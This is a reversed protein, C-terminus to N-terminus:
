QHKWELVVKANKGTHLRWTTGDYSPLYGAYWLELLPKWPCSGLKEAHKWTKINPFLGGTYAWVSASVSDRVSASVSAWVSARVSASVSAWVSYRVSDSVSASVSAWVSYRVSDSVSAWVSASVSDRVSYRVSACVSDWKQLLSLLEKKSKPKRKTLLPNVPNFAEKVKWGTLRCKSWKKLEMRCSKECAAEDYWGPVEDQDVKYQWKSLPLSLDGNPPCIEVNVINTGRIGDAHLKHETIIETHSDSKESWWSKPGKTIVFSALECM